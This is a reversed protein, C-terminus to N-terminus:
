KSVKCLGQKNKKRCFQTLKGAGLLKKIYRKRKTPMQPKGDRGLVYIYDTDPM